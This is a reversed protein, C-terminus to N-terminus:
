GLVAGKCSWKGPIYGTGGDQNKLSSSPIICGYHLRKAIIHPPEIVQMPTHSNASEYAAVKKSITITDYKDPFTLSFDFLHKQMYNIHTSATGAGSCFLVEFSTSKRTESGIEGGPHRVQRLKPGGAAAQRDKKDTINCSTFSSIISVSCITTNRRKKGAGSVCGCRRPATMGRTTRWFLGTIWHSTGALTM